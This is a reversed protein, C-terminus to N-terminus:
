QCGATAFKTAMEGESQKCAGLVANRGTSTGSATTWTTRMGEVTKARDASSMGSKTMFCDYKVLYKDCEPPLGKKGCALVPLAFALAVFVARRM